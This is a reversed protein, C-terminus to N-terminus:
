LSRYDLYQASAIHLDLTIVVDGYRTHKGAPHLFISYLDHYSIFYLYANGGIIGAM